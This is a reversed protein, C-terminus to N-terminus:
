GGLNIIDHIEENTSRDHNLALLNLYRECLIISRKINRVDIDVTIKRNRAFCLVSKNGKKHVGMLARYNVWMAPFRTTDRLTFVIDENIENVLIPPKQKILLNNCAAKKRGEYTSGCTKCWMKIFKLARINKVIKVQNDEIIELQYDNLERITYIM